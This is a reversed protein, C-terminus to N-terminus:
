FYIKNWKNINYFKKLSVFNKLLHTLEILNDGNEGTIHSLYLELWSFSFRWSQWNRTRGKHKCQWFEIWNMTERCSYKLAVEENPPNFSFWMIQLVINSYVHLNHYKVIRHFLTFLFPPWQWDRSHFRWEEWSGQCIVPSLHSFPGLSPPLTLGYLLYEIDERWGRKSVQPRIRQQCSVSVFLTLHSQLFVWLPEQSAYGRKYSTPFQQLKSKCFQITDLPYLFM